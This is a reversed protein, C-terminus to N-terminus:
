SLTRATEVNSIPGGEHGQPFIARKEEYDPALKPYNLTGRYSIAMVDILTDDPLGPYVTVRREGIEGVPLVQLAQSILSGGDEVKPSGWSGPSRFVRVNVLAPQGTGDNVQTWALTLTYTDIGIIKLDRIPDPSGNVTPGFGEELPLESELIPGVIVREGYITRFFEATDALRKLDAAISELTGNM